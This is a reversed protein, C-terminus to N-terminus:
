HLHLFRNKKTKQEALAPINAKTERGHARVRTLDKGSLLHHNFISFLDEKKKPIIHCSFIIFFASQNNLAVINIQIKFKQDKRSKNLL